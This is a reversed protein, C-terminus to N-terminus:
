TADDGQQLYEDFDEPMPLADKREDLWQSFSDAFCMARERELQNRPEWFNADIAINMERCQSRSAWWAPLHDLALTTEM